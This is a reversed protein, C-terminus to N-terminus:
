FNLWIPPPSCSLGGQNSLWEQPLVGYLSADEDPFLQYECSRAEVSRLGAMQADYFAIGSFEHPVISRLREAVKEWLEDLNLDTVLANNIELLLRCRDREKALEQRNWRVERLNSIDDM